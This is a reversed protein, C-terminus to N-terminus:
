SGVAITIHYDIWYGKFFLQNHLFYERRLTALTPAAVWLVYYDKKHLTAVGVDLVSFSHETGYDDANIERKEEPYIVSLHAGTNKGEFYDPKEINPLNLMPFLQHIFEDSIDLYLYNEPTNVLTGTNPLNKAAELLAPLNLSKIEPTNPM